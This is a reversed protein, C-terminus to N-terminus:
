RKIKENQENKSNERLIGPGVSHM